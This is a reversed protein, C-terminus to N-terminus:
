FYVVQSCFAVQVGAKFRTQARVQQFDNSYWFKIDDEEGELDVGYYLNSLNTAYIHGTGNLGNLAIVRTSTGPVVIEFDTGEGTKFYNFYNANRLATIYLRYTDFGMLIATDPLTLITTPIQAYIADIVAVVNSSTIGTVNGTNGSIASTCAGIIKIFGDFKSLNANGSATDGQWIATELQANIQDTYLGVFQEEFPISENDSGGKLQSQIYYGNLDQPCWSNQVMIKGVTITRQTLTTTDLANFSCAQTQFTVGTDFINLTSSGKIGTQLNILSATKAGFVAKRLLPFNQQEVYATLASVNYAM